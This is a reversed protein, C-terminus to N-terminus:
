GQLINAFVPLGIFIALFFLIVACFQCISKVPHERLEAFAGELSAPEVDLADEQDDEEIFPYLEDEKILGHFELNRAVADRVSGIVHIDWNRKVGTLDEIMKHITNDVFDQKELVEKETLPTVTIPKRTTIGIVASM